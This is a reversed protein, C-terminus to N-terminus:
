AAKRQTTRVDRDAQDRVPWMMFVLIPVMWAILPAWMERGPDFATAFFSVVGIGVVAAISKM